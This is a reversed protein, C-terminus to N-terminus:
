EGCAAHHAQALAGASGKAVYLPRFERQEERM